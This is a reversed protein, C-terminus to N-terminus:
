PIKAWNELESLHETLLIGYRSNAVDDSM